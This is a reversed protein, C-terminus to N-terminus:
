LKRRESGAQRRQRSRVADIAKYRTTRHLWGSLCPHQLLAASRRALETFVAQTIDEALQADGGTQRRAASYVLNVRRGVLEAFAAESRDRVYRQLLEIDPVPM